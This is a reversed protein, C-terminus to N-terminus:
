CCRAASILVDTLDVELLVQLINCPTVHHESSCSFDLHGQLNTEQFAQQALIHATLNLSRHIKFIRASSSATNNYFRQTFPKIRRDPPNSLDQKNLFSVLQENDSLFNTGTMNLRHVIDSALALAAAEAMLVSTCAELKAKVYLTQIAQEQLNLILIGLGATRPLQNPQDPSVSADVYCRPGQLLAPTSIQLRNTIAQRHVLLTMGETPTTTAQQVPPVQAQRPTQAPEPPSPHSHPHSTELNHYSGHASSGAIALNTGQTTTIDGSNIRPEQVATAADQVRQRHSCADNTTQEQTALHHSSIHAQVAHHVQWPTWTKRNFRHNNRTKWLYWLTILIKHFLVNPPPSLCYPKSSLNCAM